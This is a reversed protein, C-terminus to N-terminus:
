PAQVALQQVGCRPCSRRVQELSWWGAGQPKLEPSAVALVRLNHMTSPRARFALLELSVSGGPGAKTGLYGGPASRLLPLAVLLVLAAVVLAPALPRDSLWNWLREVWGQAEPESAPASAPAPPLAREFMRDAEEATLSAVPRALAALVQEGEVSGLRELCGECPSALHASLAERDPAPLDGALLRELRDSTLVDCSM